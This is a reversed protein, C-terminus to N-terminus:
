AYRTNPKRWGTVQAVSRVLRGLQIRLRTWESAALGSIRQVVSCRFPEERQWGNRTVAVVRGLLSSAPRAPDRRWHSDGRAVLWRAGAVLAVDVLRHAYMREGDLVLVVDGRRVQDVTCHRVTLTEGSRIVPFMSGGTARIRAEGFRRLVDALLAPAATLLEKEGRPM